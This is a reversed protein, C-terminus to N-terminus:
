VFICMIQSLICKLFHPVHLQDDESEIEGFYNKEVILSVICHLIEARKRNLM